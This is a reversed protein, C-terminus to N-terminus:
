RVENCSLDYASACLVGCMSQYLVNSEASINSGHRHALAETWLLSQVLPGLGVVGLGHVASSEQSDDAALLERAVTRLRDRLQWVDQQLEGAMPRCLLLRRILLPRVPADAASSSFVILLWALVHVVTESYTWLKERVFRIWRQFTAYSLAHPYSV